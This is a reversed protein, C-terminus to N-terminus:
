CTAQQRTPFRKVVPRPYEDLLEADAAVGSRLTAHASCSPCCRAVTTALLAFVGVPSALRSRSVLCAVLDVSWTSVSALYFCM